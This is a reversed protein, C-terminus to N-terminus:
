PQVSPMLLTAAACTDDPHWKTCSGIMMQSPAGVVTYIDIKPKRELTCQRGLESGQPLETGDPLELVCDKFTNRLMFLPGGAWRVTAHDFTNGVFINNDLAVPIQLFQSALFYKKFTEDAPQGKSVLFSVPAAGCPPQNVDSCTLGSFRFVRPQARAESPLNTPLTWQVNGSVPFAGIQDEGGVFDTYKRTESLIAKALSVMEEVSMQDLLAQDTRTRYYHQVVPDTTLYEGAFIEDAVLTIGVTARFFHTVKTSDSTVTYEPVLVKQPGTPKWEAVFVKREVIPLRDSDFRAFTTWMSLAQSPTTAPDSMAAVGTLADELVSEAVMPAEPAYEDGLHSPGLERLIVSSVALDLPSNFRGVAFGAIVMASNSTTRFLKQSNDCHHQLKGECLFPRESSMRSDAAVVFGNKNALVLNLTGSAMVPSLQSNEQQAALQTPLMLIALLVLGVSNSPQTPM